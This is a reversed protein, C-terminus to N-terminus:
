LVVRFGLTFDRYDSKGYGRITSRCISVHKQVSGGRWLRSYNDDHNLNMEEWPENGNNKLSDPKGQYSDHWQALCWEWVNGSMDYIGLENAKKHGVPNTKGGM